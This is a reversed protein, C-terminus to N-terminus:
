TSKLENIRMFALLLGFVLWVLQDGNFVGANHFFSHFSYAVIYVWFFCHILPYHEKLKSISTCYSGYFFFFLFLSLFGLKVFTAVYSNHAAEDLAYSPLEPFERLYTYNLLFYDKSGIGTFFYDLFIRLSAYLHYSRNMFSQDIFERDSLSMWVFIVGFSIILISLLRPLSLIGSFFIYLLISFLFGFISSKTLSFFLGLFCFLFLAKYFYGDRYRYLAFSLSAVILMQYSYTISFYALGMPRARGFLQATIPDRPDPDFGIGMRILWAQDFQLFQFLAVSISLLSIVTISRLAFVFDETTRISSITVFLICIPIAFYRLTFDFNPAVGLHVLNATYTLSALLFFTAVVFKDLSRFFYAVYDLNLVLGITIFVLHVPLSAIKIYSFYFYAVSLLFFNALRFSRLM